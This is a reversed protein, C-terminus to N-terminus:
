YYNHDPYRRSWQYEFQKRAYLHENGCAILDRNPNSSACETTPKYFTLWAKEKEARRKIEENKRQQELKQQELQAKLRQNREEAQQRYKAQNQEFQLQLQRSQRQIYRESMKLEQEFQKLAQHVQWRTYIDHLIWAVIIAALVSFFITSAGIQNRRRDEEEFFKLQKYNRIEDDDIRM